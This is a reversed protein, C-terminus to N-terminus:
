RLHLCSLSWRLNKLCTHAVLWIFVIKVLLFLLLLLFFYLEVIGFDSKFAGFRKTEALKWRLVVVLFLRCSESGIDGTEVKGGGFGASGPFNSHNVASYCIFCPLVVKWCWIVEFFGNGDTLHFPFLKLWLNYLFGTTKFPPHSPPNTSNWPNKALHYINTHVYILYIYYRCTYINKYM